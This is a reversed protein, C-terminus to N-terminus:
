ARLFCVIALDSYRLKPNYDTNLIGGTIDKRDQCQFCRKLRRKERLFENLEGIM